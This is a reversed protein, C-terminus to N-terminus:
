DKVMEKMIWIWDDEFIFLVFLENDNIVFLKYM